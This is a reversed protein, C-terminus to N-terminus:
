LLMDEITYPVGRTNYGLSYIAVRLGPPRIILCLANELLIEGNGGSDGAHLHLCKDCLSLM